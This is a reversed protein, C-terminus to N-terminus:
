KAEFAAVFIKCIHIWDLKSNEMYCKVFMDRAAGRMEDTMDAPMKFDRNPDLTAEIRDRKAKDM